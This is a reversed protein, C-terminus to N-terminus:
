RPHLVSFNLARVNTSDKQLAWCWFGKRQRPGRGGGWGTRLDVGAVSTSIRQGLRSSIPTCYDLLQLPLEQHGPDTHCSPDTALAPM